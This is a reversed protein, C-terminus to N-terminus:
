GGPIDDPVLELIYQTNTDETPVVAPATDKSQIANWLGLGGAGLAGAMVLPLTQQLLSKPPPSGVGHNIEDGIRINMSEDEDTNTATGLTGDQQKRAGRRLLSRDQTLQALQTMREALKGQFWEVGLKREPTQTANPM